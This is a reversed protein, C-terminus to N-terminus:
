NLWGFTVRQTLGAPLYTLTVSREDISDVRYRQELVEGVGVIFEQQERTFVVTMGNGDILTGAITYPFPPAVPTPPPQPRLRPKPPLPPPPPIWSKSEFLEEVEPLQERRQRPLSPPPLQRLESRTQEVQTAREKQNVSEVVASSPAEQARPWVAAAATATLAAGLM